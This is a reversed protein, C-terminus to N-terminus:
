YGHTGVSPLTIAISERQALELMSRLRDIRTEHYSVMSAAYDRASMAELLMRRAEDIERAMLEEPSSKRFITNMKM